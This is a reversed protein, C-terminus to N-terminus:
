VSRSLALLTQHGYKRFIERSQPFMKRFRLLRHLRFPDNCSAVLAMRMGRFRCVRLDKRCDLTQKRVEVGFASKWYFITTKAARRFCHQASRMDLSSFFEQMFQGDSCSCFRAVEQRTKPEFVLLDKNPAFVFWKHTWHEASDLDQLALGQELLPSPTEVYGASGVRQIEQCAFDPSNVHELVHSAYVYDFSGARFPLAKVNGVILKASRPVILQNGGRERGEKIDLEVVHTADHFPNHGAGIDLIRRALWPRRWPPLAKM